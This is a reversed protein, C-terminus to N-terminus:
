PISNDLSSHMSFKMVEWFESVLVSWVTLSDFYLIKEVLHSYTMFENRWVQQRVNCRPFSIEMLFVKNGWRFVRLDLNNRRRWCFKSCNSNVSIRVNKTSVWPLEKNKDMKASKANTYNVRSSIQLLLTWIKRCIM